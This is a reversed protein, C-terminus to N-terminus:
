LVAWGEPDDKSALVQESFDLPADMNMVGKSANGFSRYNDSLQPRAPYDADSIEEIILKKTM